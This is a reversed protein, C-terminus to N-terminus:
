NNFVALCMNCKQWSIDHKTPYPQKKLSHIDKKPQIQNNNADKFNKLKSESIHEEDIALIIHCLIPKLVEGPVEVPNSQNIRKSCRKVVIDKNGLNEIFTITKKGHSPNTPEISFDQARNLEENKQRM